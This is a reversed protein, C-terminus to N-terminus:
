IEGERGGKRSIEERREWKGHTGEARREEEERSRGGGEGVDWRMQCRGWIRERRRKRREGMRYEEVWRNQGEKEIIKKGGGGGRKIRGEEKKHEEKRGKLIKLPTASLFSLFTVISLSLSLFLISLFRLYELFRRWWEGEMGGKGVDICPSDTSTEKFM